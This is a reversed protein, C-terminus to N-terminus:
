RLQRVNSPTASSPPPLPPAGSTDIVDLLREIDLLEIERGNLRAIQRVAPHQDATPAVPRIASCPAEVIDAVADVLLGVVHEGSQAVVVSRVPRTPSTPAMGLRESLEVLLVCRDGVALMGPPCIAGVAARHVRWSVGAGVRQVKVVDQVNAIPLGVQRGGVELLVIVTQLRSSVTLPLMTRRWSAARGAM